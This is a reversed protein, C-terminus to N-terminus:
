ATGVCWRKCARDVFTKSSAPTCRAELGILEAVIDALSNDSYLSEVADLRAEGGSESGFPVGLKLRQVNEVLSSAHNAIENM